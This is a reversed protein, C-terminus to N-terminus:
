ARDNRTNIRTDIRSNIRANIDAVVNMLRPGDALDLIPLLFEDFQYNSALHHMQTACEDPTGAIVFPRVWEPKIFVAAAALSDSMAERINAVDTETIGLRAKTKAPSDVLRYTLHPRAAFVEEESTLVLTSYSLKVPNGSRASGARVLGITEDMSELDLFDLMVGSALEGGMALMNPGRGALWIEIAPNGFELKANVLSFRDTHMTVTEGNFLTRCALLTERTATLPKSRDVALPGLTLSGGAGLGLFARGGSFEHLTAIAAATTSPHRTYPNTIGTGIHVASTAAAIATMTVYVDRMALGEDYVWIRHFGLEEATKALTVLESVPAEPMLNVSLNM